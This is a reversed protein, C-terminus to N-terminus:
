FGSFINEFHCLVGTPDAIKRSYQRALKMQNIWSAPCPGRNNVAGGCKCCVAQLGKTGFPWQGLVVGWSMLDGALLLGRSIM